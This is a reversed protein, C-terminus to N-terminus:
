IRVDKLKDMISSRRIKGAKRAQELQAKTPALGITVQRVTFGKSRLAEVERRCDEANLNGLHQDKRGNEIRDIRWSRFDQMPMRYFEYAVIVSVPRFGRTATKIREANVKGLLKEIMRQQVDEPLQEEIASTM